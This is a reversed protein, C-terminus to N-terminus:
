RFLALLRCQENSLVILRNNSKPYVEAEIWLRQKVSTATGIKVKDSELQKVLRLADFCYVSEIVWPRVKGRSTMQESKPGALVLYFDPLAEPTIDLINELKAYWKINVSRGALAGSEFHGDISKHSASQVLTIGFIKSAIFEGVHGIAAPRGILATIEEENANRQRILETLRNLEEM